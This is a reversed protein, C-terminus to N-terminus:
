LNISTLVRSKVVDILISCAGSVLPNMTSIATSSFKAVVCALKAQQVLGFEQKKLEDYTKALQVITTFKEKFFAVGPSVDVTAHHFSSSCVNVFEPLADLMKESSYRTIAILSANKEKRDHVSSGVSAILALLPKEMLDPPLGELAALVTNVAALQEEGLQVHSLQALRVLDDVRNAAEQHRALAPQVAQFLCRSTSGLRELDNKTSLHDAICQQLYAPLNQLRYNIRPALAGCPATRQGSARDHAAVDPRRQASEVAAQAQMSPARAASTPGAAGVMSGANFM